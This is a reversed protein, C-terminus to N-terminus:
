RRESRRRRAVFGLGGLGSLLLPFAAPLPVPALNLVGSYSGGATGTATGRVELVYTGAALTTQPLVSLTGSTGGSSIATSWADILTSGVPTGLVPPSNGAASYLRVQLGSIALVNAYNITSTIADAGATGITFVYADYFGFGNPYLTSTSGSITTGGDAGGTFTNGYTYSGPVALSNSGGPGTTGTSVESYSYTIASAEATAPGFAAALGALAAGAMWLRFKVM